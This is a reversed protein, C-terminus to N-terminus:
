ATGVDKRVSFQESARRVFKIPHLNDGILKAFM